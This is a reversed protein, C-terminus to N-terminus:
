NWLDNVLKETDYSVKDLVNYYMLQTSVDTAFPLGFGLRKLIKEEKLVVETEGELAIEDNDFVYIYDGFYVEEMNSTINIFHMNREKILAIIREKGAKTFRRLSDNFVIRKNLNTEIIERLENFGLNDDLISYENVKELLKKDISNSIITYNLNEKITM